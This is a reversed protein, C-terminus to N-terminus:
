HYLLFFLMSLIGTFMIIKIASSLQHFDQSSNAKFLKNFVWFLPSIIFVICYLISWWWGYQLVYIQLIVLTTILVILWVAVFVKSANLGWVIPMTKCGYKRDGEMDEMDKIVERILSIIFAFGGYLIAFRFFRVHLIEDGEMQLLDINIKSLFIIGIVWATLLSILVNGILLKKKLSSSYIWLLFISVINAIILPWHLRLPLALLTLILGVLSLIFHWAIVWRRSIIFNVVVKKPKNIQDINLDFYDNIIYGAAAICVSAAVLLFFQHQENQYRSSSPFVRYYICYEFLAQTLIIFVLNPWRILKFFGPIIKM